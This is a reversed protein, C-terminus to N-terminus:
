SVRPLRIVVRTGAGEESRVEITGKLRQVVHNYAVHLGLGV